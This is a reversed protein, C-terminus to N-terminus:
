ICICSISLPTTLLHDSLISPTGLDLLNWSFTLFWVFENICHNRSGRWELENDRGYGWGLSFLNQIIQSYFQKLLSDM